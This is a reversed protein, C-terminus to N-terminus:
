RIVQVFVVREAPVEVEGELSIAAGEGRVIKPLLLVYHGAWRGALVGEITEVPTDPKVELHLRVRRKGRMAYLMRGVWRPM